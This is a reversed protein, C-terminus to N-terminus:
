AKKTLVLPIVKEPAERRNSPDALFENIEKVALEVDDHSMGHAIMGQELTEYVAVHCGTCHLGFKNMINATDPNIKLIEGMTMDKRVLIQQQEMKDRKLIMGYIYRM